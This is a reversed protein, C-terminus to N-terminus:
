LRESQESQESQESSDDSPLSLVESEFEKFVMGRRKLIVMAINIINQKEEKMDLKSPRTKNKFEKISRELQNQRDIAIYLTIIGNKVKNSFAIIKKHKTFDYTKNYGKYLM